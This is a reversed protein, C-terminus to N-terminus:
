QVQFHDLIKEDKECCSIPFAFHYCLQSPHVAEDMKEGGLSYFAHPDIRAKLLALYNQASM